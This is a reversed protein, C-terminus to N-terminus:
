LAFLLAICIFACWICTQIFVLMYLIIRSRTMCRNMACPGLSHLNCFLAHCQTFSLSVLQLTHALKFQTELHQKARTPVTASQCCKFNIVNWQLFHHCQVCCCCCFSCILLKDISQTTTHQLCSDECVCQKPM